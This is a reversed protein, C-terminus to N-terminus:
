ETVIFNDPNGETLRITDTIDEYFDEIQEKSLLSFKYLVGRALRVKNMLDEKDPFERVGFGEYVGEFTIFGEETQDYDLNILNQDVGVVAYSEESFRFLALDNKEWVILTDGVKGIQM